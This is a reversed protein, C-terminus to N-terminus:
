PTRDPTGHLLAMLAGRQTVLLRFAAYERDYRHRTTAAPRVRSGQHAMAKGAQAFDAFHGDALTAAIATGLLVADGERPLMVDCGTADAYIQVLLPSRAHGGTMNLQDIAYGQANLTDIIHRTGFAIGLATAHYLKALGDFSADLDLGHIVGRLRADALPSRNGNFDPVVLLGSGFGLPDAQRQRGIYECIAHHRDAGLTSAATHTDLLHDLAAGTASQGGENLWWEPLVAGLYPGWVGPVRRPARSLAMHCNSTGAILALQRDLADPATGGLVGLAGAHADILGVGVATGAALGLEAASDASLRGACGGVPWARAPLQMQRRLSALGISQLLDDPWGDEHALYGWKCTVTCNSVGPTGTAKWTLFDALDFAHGYRAWAQPLHERLWMLKPLQMEPSMTGGVHALVRHGSATIAQAEHTARHDAWMLVNWRDELTTSVTVPVGRADLMVLSCTADFALAAIRSPSVGAADRAAQVAACVARWIQASDHEAHDAAPRHVDFSHAGYGLMRGSLDFVGARAGSSGVDVAVVAATM